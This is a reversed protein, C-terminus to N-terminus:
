RLVMGGRCFDAKEKKSGTKSSNCTSRIPHRSPWLIAETQRVLIAIADIHCM